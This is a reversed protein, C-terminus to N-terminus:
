VAAPGYPDPGMQEIQETGELPEDDVLRLFVRMIVECIERSTALMELEKQTTFRICPPYDLGPVLIALKMSAEEWREDDGGERDFPLGFAVGSLRIKGQTFSRVCEFDGAALRHPEHAKDRPFFYITSTPGQPLIKFM